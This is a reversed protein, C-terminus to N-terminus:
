QALLYDPYEARITDLQALTGSLHQRVNRQAGRADGAAIAALISTHDSLINAAKDKIPAHLRRLRDLHGSQQRMWHWLTEVQAAIYLQRHFMQDVQMFTAFDRHALALAQQSLLNELSTLPLRSPTQALLHVIELELSLRLLHAQRASEVDIARVATNQQPVIDVLGAEGLRLLADRIPTSSLHYYAALEDRQLQTGPKLELSIIRDRLDDFVQASASRTRDLRFGGPQFM